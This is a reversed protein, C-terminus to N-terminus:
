DAVNKVGKEQHGFYFIRLKNVIIYLIYQFFKINRLNKLKDSANILVFFKYINNTQHKIYVM